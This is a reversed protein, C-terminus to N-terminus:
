ENGKVSPQKGQWIAIIQPLAQQARGVIQDQSLSSLPHDIVVVGMEPIGLVSSQARAERVFESTIIMATPIGLEELNV